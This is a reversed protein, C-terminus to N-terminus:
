PLSTGIQHMSRRLFAKDNQQQLEEIEKPCERVNGPEEIAFHILAHRNVPLKNQLPNPPHLFRYARRRADEMETKNNNDSM